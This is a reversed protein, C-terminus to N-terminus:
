PCEHVVGTVLSLSNPMRQRHISRKGVSAPEADRHHTRRESGRALATCAETLTPVELDMAQRLIRHSAEPDLNAISGIRSQQTQLRGKTREDSGLDIWESRCGDMRSPLSDTPM